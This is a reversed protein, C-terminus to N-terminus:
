KAELDFEQILEKALKQVKDDDILLSISIESTTIQYPTIKNIKLIKFVRSVVGYADRMGSGVLSAKTYQKKKIAYVDENESLKSIVKQLKDQDKLDCSFALNTEEQFYVQSIMDINIKNATLLNMIYEELNVGSKFSISTSLVNEQIAIASIVNNENIDNMIYTGKRNSLSKAVYIKTNYKQAVMISRNHMVNAGLSALENMEEYTIHSLKKANPFIRPDIAYIGEVDTYIECDVGLKSAIAVASTDSGGRGLTVVENKENVGQFGAVILCDYKKLNQNIFKDNISKIKAEQFDGETIIGIQSASLSTSKVGIKELAMTLLSITKIEGISLLIDLEKSNSSVDGIETALKILENTENGMASVVVVLKEMNNVRKKLYDAIAKIKITDSVSSGGFKLVNVM